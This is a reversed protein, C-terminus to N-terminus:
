VKSTLSLELLINKVTEGWTTLRRHSIRVVLPDMKFATRKESETMLKLTTHLLGLSEYAYYPPDGMSMFSEKTMEKLDPITLSDIIHSFRQYFDFSIEDRALYQAAIGLYKAKQEDDYRDLAKISFKGFKQRYKEDGQIKQVMKLREKSPIKGVTKLFTIVKELFIADRVAITTKIGKMLYAVIPINEGLDLLKQLSYDSLEGIFGLLDDKAVSVELTEGVDNLSENMTREYNIIIVSFAKGKSPM